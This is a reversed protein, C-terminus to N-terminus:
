TSSDSGEKEREKQEEAVQRKLEEEEIRNLELPHEEQMEKKTITGKWWALNMPYVDPNFIVFYFHWVIIALTALWAEYYHIANAVDWWSKGIFALFTNEFWMICGTVAMVITGWILAWYEAKEVYSFRGFQPKSHSLGLNYKAVAFAELVDQAKPILDRILQKGRPVFFIYYIHYLGAVIMVVAAIRHLLGRIAFLGPSVSHIPSVWWADPFKLMFGTIVLTVFSVILSGHQLRESLTMRVYLGRGAFEEAIAGRREQLKRKSKKIFDLINHFFMGGITVIILVIYASSILYLLHDQKATIIVHVPGKTFNENAGPHCKGCTKAINAPNVSSRPDSSPLIDHIGHCSACNAVNLNGEKEALGHYSDNFSQVRGVPIGFKENLALSSHCPSCVEAAVHLKSVPSLPNTPALINHEGHCNTCVPAERNGAFFSTGHISERYQQEISPHCKGCTSPINARNVSSAPDAANKIGHSGHCDVCNAAMGNGNLLAVGHVSKEYSSVFNATPVMAPMNKSKVHCTICVQEQSIKLAASDGAAAVSTINRSHCQICTPALAVKAANAKGHVSLLYARKEEQHCTGCSEVIREPSFKSGPVGPSQIDHTGHCEVCMLSVNKGAKLLEVQHFPHKAIVDQHCTQCQVPTIKAKHPVNNPDFGTHCAVCVLKRHASHSFVGDDVFLSVSKGNRQMTLDKDSHCALCEEKTQSFLFSTSCLVVALFFITKLYVVHKISMFTELEVLPNKM